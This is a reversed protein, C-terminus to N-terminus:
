VSTTAAIEIRAAASQSMGNELLKIWQGNSMKRDTFQNTAKPRSTSTLEAIGGRRIDQKNRFWQSVQPCAHLLDPVGAAIDEVPVIDRGPAVDAALHLGVHSEREQSGDAEEGAGKNAKEPDPPPLPPDRARICVVDVATPPVAARPDLLTPDRGVCM